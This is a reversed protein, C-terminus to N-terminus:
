INLAKASNDLLTKSFSSAKGKRTSVIAAREARKRRHAAQGQGNHRDRLAEKGPAGGLEKRAREVLAKLASGTIRNLSLEEALKAVPKDQKAM